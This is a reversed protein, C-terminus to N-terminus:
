PPSPVIIMWMWLNFRIGAFIGFSLFPEQSRAAPAPARQAMLTKHLNLAAQNVIMPVVKMLHMTAAFCPQAIALIPNNSKAFGKYEM